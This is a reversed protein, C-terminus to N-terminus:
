ARRRRAALMGALAVGAAAGPAPIYGSYTSRRIEADLQSVSNVVVTGNMAGGLLRLNADTALAAGNFTNNVILQSTARFNWLIRGSNAQSFGGILNPPAILDVTGGTATADVNIIVSDAAGFQLNLQGLPGNFLSSSLNYIAVRQGGLLVPSASMNGAGDVSGNAALGALHASLAAAESMASAVQAPVTADVTRTGGNMIPNVALSTVRANGASNVQVTGSITGGLALGVGAPATVGQISTNFTGSISGGILSSGDVESTSTVSNRVILNWSTLTSGSAVCAASVCVAVGGEVVHDGANSVGGNAADRRRLCSAGGHERGDGVLLTIVFGAL